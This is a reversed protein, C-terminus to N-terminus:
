FEFTEVKEQQVNKEDSDAGMWKRIEILEAHQYLKSKEFLEQITFRVSFSKNYEAVLGVARMSYGGLAFFDDNMGIETKGLVKEWIEVLKVETETAPAVYEVGTSMEMGDSHPLLKRDIKGSTTQPFKELQVYFVPLMYEPLSEKLYTRLDSTNQEEKAVIYAVLEGEGKDNEVPVVVSQIIQDHKSLAHEIEGLEIRYGRIKVQYDRRGIFEINGDPLWRGLDGTRYLREKGRVPNAIFRENTLEVQNLYGRAIGTGGICIEGIIETPQLEGFESLIYIQENQLPTGISLSKSTKIDLATSWITTETPGYANLSEFSEKKLNDYLDRSLAEGGVILYSITEPLTNSISYLQSLRSPTIQLGDVNYKNIKELFKYPDILDNESLMILERGKCLASWIELGSIDFTINTSAAIKKVNGFDFCTIFSALSRHEIMVGKPTGTSGSTYIVYALDNPTTIKSVKDTSYKAQELRFIGLEDIDLILKCNTDSKIFAIREQPYDADMPVYAAGSKLIGLLSTILWESREQKIAVLDGPQIRYKSKLYHALCNSRKDLESYSLENGDFVIATSEPTNAVQEEFLDIITKNKDYAVAKDNFVTLLENREQKSIYDLSIIPSNANQVFEDMLNHLHEILRNISASAYRYANYKIVIEISTSGPNIIINFDYNTREFTEASEILLGEGQDTHVGESELENVAYNVFIMIHDILNMGLESQSQVESLNMYHHSTSEISQDQLKRLLDVPTTGQDYGVRVPITNIFLGIMDEVGALDAPRGSVVSGFVVDTTNNYR